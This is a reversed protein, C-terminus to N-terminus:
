VIVTSDVVEKGTAGILLIDEIGLADNQVDDVAFGTGDDVAFETGDDVAEAVFRDSDLVESSTIKVVAADSEKAVVM